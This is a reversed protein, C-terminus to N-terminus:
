KLDKEEEVLILIKTKQKLEELREQPTVFLDTTLKTTIDIPFHAIKNRVWRNGCRDDIEITDGIKYDKGQWPLDRDFIVKM